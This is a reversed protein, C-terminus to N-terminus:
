NNTHGDRDDDRHTETDTDEARTGSRQNHQCWDTPEESRLTHATAVNDVSVGLMTTTGSVDLSWGHLFTVGSVSMDESQRRHEKTEAEDHGHSHDGDMIWVFWTLQSSQSSFM